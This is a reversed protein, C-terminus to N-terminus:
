IAAATLSAAPLQPTLCPLAPLHQSAEALTSIGLDSLLGAVKHRLVERTLRLSELRDAGPVIPLHWDIRGAGNALAISRNDGWEGLLVVVDARAMVEADFPRYDLSLGQLDTGQLLQEPLGASAHGDLTSSAMNLADGAMVRAWAQALLARCASGTSLFLLQLRRGM